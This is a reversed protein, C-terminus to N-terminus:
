RDVTCFCKILLSVLQKLFIGKYRLINTSTDHWVDTNHKTICKQTVLSM